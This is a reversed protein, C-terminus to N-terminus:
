QPVSQVIFKALLKLVWQHNSELTLTFYTPNRTLTKYKQNQRNLNGFQEGKRRPNNMIKTCFNRFLNSKTKKILLRFKPNLHINVLTHLYGCGVKSRHDMTTKTEAQNNTSEYQYGTCHPAQKEQDYLQTTNIIQLQLLAVKQDKQNTSHNCHGHSQVIHVRLSTEPFQIIKKKRAAVNCPSGQDQHQQKLKM